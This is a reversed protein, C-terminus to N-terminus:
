SKVQSNEYKFYQHSLWQPVIVQDKKKHGQNNYISSCHYKRSGEGFSEQTQFSMIVFVKFHSHAYSHLYNHRNM